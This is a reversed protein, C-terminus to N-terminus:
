IWPTITLRSLRSRPETIGIIKDVLRDIGKYYTQPDNPSTGFFATSVSIDGRGFIRLDGKITGNADPQSLAYVSTVFRFDPSLKEMAAAVTFNKMNSAPMMLKGANMDFLREGTDLSRIDVGWVGRENIPANFVKGLDDRLGQVATSSQPPVTQAPPNAACSAVAVM